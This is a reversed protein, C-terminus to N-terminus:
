CRSLFSGLVLKIGAKLTCARTIKVIVQKMRQFPIVVFFVFLKMEPIKNLFLLLLSRYFMDAEGIMIIWLQQILKQTFMRFHIENLQLDIIRVPFIRGDTGTCIIFHGPFM